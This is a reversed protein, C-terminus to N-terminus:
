SFLESIVCCCTQRKMDPYTATRLPEATNTEFFCRVALEAQGDEAFDKNREITDPQAHRALDTLMLLV